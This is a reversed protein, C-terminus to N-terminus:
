HARRFFSEWKEAIHNSLSNELDKLNLEKKSLLEMKLEGKEEQM